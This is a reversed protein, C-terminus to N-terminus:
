SRRSLRARASELLARPIPAEQARLIEGLAKAQADTALSAAVGEGLLGRLVFNLARLNPLPYLDIVLNRAEPLLERLRDVTLYPQLWAYADDSEVWVGLNANGGKDGSRAGCITGLPARRTEESTELRPPEYSTSATPEQSPPPLSPWSIEIDRGEFVVKPVVVERPVLTPWYVGFPSERGPPASLNFGPYSALAMEVAAGSFRRGVKRPDPDKVALTLFSFPEGGAGERARHRKVATEAFSERGGLQSWLTREALEAKAEIELGALLFTVRNKFGGHYNCCVKM